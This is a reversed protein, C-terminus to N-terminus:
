DTRLLDPDARSSGAFGLSHHFDHSLDPSDQVNDSGIECRIEKRRDISGISKRRRSAIECSRGFVPEVRRFPLVLHKPRSKAFFLLIIIITSIRNADASEALTFHNQHPALYRPIKGVSLQTVTGM